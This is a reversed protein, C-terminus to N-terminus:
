PSDSVDYMLTGSTKEPARGDVVGLALCGVDAAAGLLRCRARRALAGRRRAAAGADVRAAARRVALPRTLMWGPSKNKSAM